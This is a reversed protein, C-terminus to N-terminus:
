SVPVRRVARTAPPQRLACYATKPRYVSSNAGPGARGIGYGREPDSSPLEDRDALTYILVGLTDSMSLIRRSARLLM